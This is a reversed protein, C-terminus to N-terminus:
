HAHHHHKAAGAKILTATLGSDGKHAHVVVKEGPALDAASAKAGAREVKTQADLTVTTEAGKTTKVVITSADVSVVTGLLHEQGGHARAGSAALLAVGALLGTWSIKTM